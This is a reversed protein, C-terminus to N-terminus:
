RAGSMARRPRSHSPVRRRRPIASRAQVGATPSAPESMRWPARMVYALAALVTLDLAVVATIATALTM